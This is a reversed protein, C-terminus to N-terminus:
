HGPTTPTGGYVKVREYLYPDRPGVLSARYAFDRAAKKLGRRGAIEAATDLFSRNKPQKALALDIAKGAEPLWTGHQALGWAMANLAQPDLSTDALAAELLNRSRARERAGRAKAEAKESARTARALLSDFQEAFHLHSEVLRAAAHYRFLRVLDELPKPSDDVRLSIWATASEARDPDVRGVLLAASRLPGRTSAAGFAISEILREPLPLARRVLFSDATADLAYTYSISNGTVALTTDLRGGSFNIVESGTMGCPQGDRDVIGIQTRQQAANSQFLTRCVEEIPMGQRLLVLGRPGWGPIVDGQTVVAGAGAEVWPVTAGCAPADSVVVIGIEGTMRDLGILSLSGQMDAGFAGYAFGATAVIVVAIFVLFVPTPTRKM